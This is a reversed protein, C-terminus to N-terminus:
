GAVGDLRELALVLALGDGVEKAAGRGRRLLRARGDADDEGVLARPEGELHGPAARHSALEVGQRAVRVQLYGRGRVLSTRARLAAPLHPFFVPLRDFLILVM